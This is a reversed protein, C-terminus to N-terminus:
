PEVYNSFVGGYFCLLFAHYFQFSPKQSPKCDPFKIVLWLYGGWFDFLLISQKVVIEGIKCMVRGWGKGELRFTCAGPKAGHYARIGLPAM